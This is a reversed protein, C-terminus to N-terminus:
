LPQGWIIWAVTALAFYLCFIAGFGFWNPEDRTVSKARENRTERGKAQRSPRTEKELRMQAVHERDM